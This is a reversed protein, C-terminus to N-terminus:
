PELRDFNTAEGELARTIMAHARQSIGHGVVDRLRLDELQLPDLGFFQLFSRNVYHCREDPDIYAVPASVGDMIARLQSERAALTDQAERLDTIDHAVCYLGNITGDFKLDPVIRARMWRMRGMMDLVE